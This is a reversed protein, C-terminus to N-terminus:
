YYIREGKKPKPRQTDIRDCKTCVWWDAYFDGEPRWNHDCDDCQGRGDCRECIKKFFVGKHGKADCEPCDIM